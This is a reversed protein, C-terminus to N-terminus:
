VETRTGWQSAFRLQKAIRYEWFLHLACEEWNTFLDAWRVGESNSGLFRSRPRFGKLMHLWPDEWVDMAGTKSIRQCAGLRLLKRSRLIAKLVWAKMYLGKNNDNKAWWFDRVVVGMKACVVKPILNSMLSSSPVSM